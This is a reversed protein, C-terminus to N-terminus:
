NMKRYVCCDIVLYNRRAFVQSLGVNRLYGRIRNKNFLETYSFTGGPKLVRHIEDLARPINRFQWDRKEVHHLVMMAFVADFTENEFSLNLADASRFEINSPIAGLKSEFLARAAEVQSADYDTVLVRRPHYQEFVQYSLFGKGSGIELCSSNGGLTLYDCINNFFRRSNSENSRNVFFKGFGSLRAMGVLNLGHCEIFPEPSIRIVRVM